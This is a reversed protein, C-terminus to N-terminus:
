QPQTEGDESAPPEMNPAADGSEAPAGAEDARNARERYDRLWRHLEDLSPPAVYFVKIGEPFQVRHRESLFVLAAEGPKLTEDLKKAMHEYRRRSTEQFAQSVYESVKRSVLGVFLCREWDLVEALTDSDEIPVFAAGREVRRNALTGAGPSLQEAVKLGGEGGRDVMEMLVYKAEGLRWELRQVGEDAGSWFREMITALEAPPEQPTLILPVLYVKREQQFQGAEPKEIKGLEQAM